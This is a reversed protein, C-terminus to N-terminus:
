LCPKGGARPEVLRLDTLDYVAPDIGYTNIRQDADTQCQLKRQRLALVKQCSRFPREGGRLWLMVGVLLQDANVLFLRGAGLTLFFAVEQEVGIHIQPLLM